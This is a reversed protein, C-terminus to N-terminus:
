LSCGYTNSCFNIEQPAFVFDQHAACISILHNGDPYYQKFHWIEGDNMSFPKDWPLVSFSEPPLSLGLGTAKMLSEKLTWLEFFKEERNGRGNTLYELESKQFCRQAVAMDASEIREIDVGLPFLDVALVVYDGGHSLNFCKEGNLLAPKGYSNLIIEEDKKIGLIEKMLLGGAICRLKDALFIYREAKERRKPTIDELYLEYEAALKRIDTLYVEIM